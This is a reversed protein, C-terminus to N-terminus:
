LMFLYVKEFSSNGSTRGPFHYQYGPRWVNYLNAVNLVVTAFWMIRDYMLSNFVTNSLM